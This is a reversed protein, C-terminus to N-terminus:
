PRPAAAARFARMQGLALQTVIDVEGTVAEPLSEDAVLTAHAFAALLAHAATTPHILDWFLTGTADFTDGDPPCAGSPPRSGDDQQILCPVSVNDFGFVEQHAFVESLGANVNVMVIEVELLDALEAMVEALIANHAATLANLGFVVDAGQSRGLPTDGLNPLNPVMFRRAGAEYLETVALALNEVADPPAIDTFFYDNAGAWVVVLENPGFTGGATLFGGVQSLVGIGPGSLGDLGTFAGAIAHNNAFPTDFDIELGLRQAFPEIWVPGNSFRGNFYPPSPPVTFGSLFFLNGTDTLSDGFAWLNSVEPQRPNTAVVGAGSAGILFTTLCTIALLRKLM